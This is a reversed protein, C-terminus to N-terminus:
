PRCRGAAPADGGDALRAVGVRLRAHVDDDAGAGLDDAALAVDDGCAADVAVDVEDARLLDFLGQGAAHGGHQAAAGAGGGARQGGGARGAGEVHLAHQLRGIGEGHVQAKQALAVGAQGIRQVLLDVRAGNAELQVFVPAGRGRGDAVAQIHRVLGVRLDGDVAVREIFRAKHLVGNGGHAPAADAGEVGFARAAPVRGVDQAHHTLVVKQWRGGVGGHGVRVVRQVLMHVHEHHAVVEIGANGFVQGKGFAADALLGDGGFVDQVVQAGDAHHAAVALGHAAHAFDDQAGPLGRVLHLHLAAAQLAVGGAVVVRADLAVHGLVGDVGGNRV